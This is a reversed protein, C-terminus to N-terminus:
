RGYFCHHALKEDVANIARDGEIRVMKRKGCKTCVWGKATIQRCEIPEQVRKRHFLCCFKFM